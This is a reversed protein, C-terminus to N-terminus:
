GAGPQLGERLREAGASTAGRRWRSWGGLGVAPVQQRPVDLVRLGLVRMAGREPGVTTLSQTGAKGAPGGRGDAGGGREHLM